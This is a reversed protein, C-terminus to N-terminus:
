ANRLAIGCKPCGKGKRFQAAYQSFVGHKNCVVGEIRKLAGTYIAATFDYRTQVRAPFKALVDAFRTPAQARANRLMNERARKLGEPTFTRAAKKVGRQADGIKKRTAEDRQKGEWPRVPNALKAARIRQRTEETHKTGYRPHQAPDKFRARLTNGIKDRIAQLSSIHMQTSHLTNYCHNQGGHQLLWTDEILRLKESDDVEEVVEFIFAEYGYENWAAQLAACHHINRKLQNWHEWRRKLPKIASGIYFDDTVVNTIKYIVSM